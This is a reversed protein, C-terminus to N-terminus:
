EASVVTFTRHGEPSAVDVSEGRRRGLLAAGLPSETTIWGREPDAGITGVLTYARDEGQDHVTVKSGVGIAGTAPPSEVVQGNALAEDIEAERRELDELQQELDEDARDAPDVESSISALTQQVAPKPVQQIATLEQQLVDRVAATMVIPKAM